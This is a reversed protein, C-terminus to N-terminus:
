RHGGAKQKEGEVFFRPDTQKEVNLATRKRRPMFHM